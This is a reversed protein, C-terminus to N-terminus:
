QAASAWWRLGNKREDEEGGRWALEIDNKASLVLLEGERERPVKGSVGFCLSQRMKVPRAATSSPDLSDPLPRRQQTHVDIEQTISIDHSNIM